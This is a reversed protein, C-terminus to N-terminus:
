TTKLLGIFLVTGPKILPELPTSVIELEPIALDFVPVNVADRPAQLSEELQVKLQYLFLLKNRVVGTVGGVVVSV